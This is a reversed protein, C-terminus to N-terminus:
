CFLFFGVVAAVVSLLFALGLAGVVDGSLLGLLFVATFVGGPFYVLMLKWRDGQENINM